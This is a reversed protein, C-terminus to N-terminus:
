KERIVYRGTEDYVKGVLVLQNYGLQEFNTENVEKPALMWYASMYDDADEGLYGVWTEWYDIIKGNDDHIALEAWNKNLWYNGNGSIVSIDKKIENRVLDPINTCTVIFAVILMTIVITIKELKSMKKFM